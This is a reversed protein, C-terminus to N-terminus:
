RFTGTFSADHYKETMGQSSRADAGKIAIRDTAAIQDLVAYCDAKLQLADMSKPLKRARKRPQQKQRAIRTRRKM